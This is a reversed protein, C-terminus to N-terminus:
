SPRHLCYYMTCDLLSTSDILASLQFPCLSSAPWHDFEYSSRRYCYKHQNQMAKPSDIAEHSAWSHLSLIAEALVLHCYEAVLLYGAKPELTGRIEPYFVRNGCTM